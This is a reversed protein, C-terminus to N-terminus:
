RGFSAQLRDGTYALAERAGELVAAMGFFQHTLNQWERREVEVGALRLLDGLTRAEIALPDIEAAIITVPPLAALNARVLNLRPDRLDAATRVTHGLFWSMMARNLPKAFANRSYSATTTDTGVIPYIALVHVPARLRQDRAAIATALALNGGAGEGALAVKLSDGNLSTANALAWQYAALADDHAAPFKHEPALRYDVSIM